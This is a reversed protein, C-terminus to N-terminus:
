YVSFRASKLVASCFRQPVTAPTCSSTAKNGSVVGTPTADDATDSALCSQMATVSAALEDSAPPALLATQFQFTAISQLGTPTVDGVYSPPTMGTAATDECAARVLKDIAIETYASRDNNIFFTVRDACGGISRAEDRYTYDPQYTTPDLTPYTSIPPPPAWLTQDPKGAIHHQYPQMQMRYDCSGFAHGTFKAVSQLYSEAPLIKRPGAFLPNTKGACDTPAAHPNQTERYLTSRFISKELDVISDTALFNTTTDNVIDPALPLPDYGLLRVLAEETNASYVDSFQRIMDGAQQLVIAEDSTADEIFFSNLPEAQCNAAQPYRLPLSVDGQNGDPNQVQTQVCNPHLSGACRCPLVEVRRPTFDVINPDPGTITQFVRYLNVLDEMEPIAADRMLVARLAANVRGDDEDVSVIGPHVAAQLIFDSFKLGGSYLQAVLADLDVLNKYWSRADNYGFREAWQKQRYAVYASTSMLDSLIDDIKKGKCHQTYEDASPLVGTIDVYLRRCLETDDAFEIDTLRCTFADRVAQDVGTPCTTAGGCPDASNKAKGPEISGRGCSALASISIGLVLLRQLNM